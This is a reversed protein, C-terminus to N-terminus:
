LLIYFGVSFSTITANFVSPFSFVVSSNKRSDDSTSISQYSFSIGGIGFNTFISIRDLFRYEFVPSLTAGIKNRFEDSSSNISSSTNLSEFKSFLYDVSLHGLIFINKYSFINYRSFFGLGVGFTENKQNADHSSDNKDIYKSEVFGYQFIPNIGFDFKNINYGIIPSTNVSKSEQFSTIDNITNENESFNLGLSGGIFWNQSFVPSVVFICIVLVLAKIKM